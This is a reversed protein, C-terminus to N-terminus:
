GVGVEVEWPQPTPTRLPHSKEGLPIAKSEPEWCRVEFGKIRVLDPVGSYGECGSPLAARISFM